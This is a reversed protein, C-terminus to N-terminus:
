APQSDGEEVAALARSVAFEAYHEGLEHLTVAYNQLRQFLQQTAAALDNTGPSGRHDVLAYRTQLVLARSLEAASALLARIRDIREEEDANAPFRHLVMAALVDLDRVQINLSEQDEQKM